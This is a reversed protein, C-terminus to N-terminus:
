NFQFQYDLKKLAKYNKRSKIIVKAGPLFRYEKIGKEKNYRSINFLVKWHHLIIKLAEFFSYPYAYIQQTGSGCGNYELITFNKGEKLDEISNCKIDYRGYFFNNKYLSLEDFVEVLKENIEHQLSILKGGQGRNSANSLVYVEGLPIVKNINKYHKIELVKANSHMNKDARILKLLTSIGDGTVQPVEKSLFGSVTGKKQSPHRYYFVSVELPYYIVEQIVYQSAIVKHYNELEKNSNIIRFMLGMMGVNPKVAVPFKLASNDMKEKVLPFNEAEKVFVSKPYSYEPLQKYMEEKTEGEMGGLTLKPNAPTFFWLSRSKICYWVWVPILPIYKIHYHWNQWYFIKNFKDSFTM